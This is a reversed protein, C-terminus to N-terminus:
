IISNRIFRAGPKSDLAATPEDLARCSLAFLSLCKGNMGIAGVLGLDSYKDNAYM